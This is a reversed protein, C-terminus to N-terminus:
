PIAEGSIIALANQLSKMEAERRKQREEYSPGSFDCTTELKGLYERAATLEVTVESLDKTATKVSDELKALTMSFNEREKEAVAKQVKYEQYYTDYEKQATAEETQTQSELKTFDSLAIELINLINQAAQERAAAPDTGEFTQPPAAAASQQLLSAGAAARQKTYFDSLVQIAKQLMEQADAYDKLATEAEAKESQRIETAEKAEANMKELDESRDQIDTKLQEMEAKEEEIRSTLKDANRAHYKEQKTTKATETDCWAKHEQEQAQESLLKVVMDEIMKKVKGFPDARMAQVMRSTLSDLQLFGLPPTYFRRGLPVSRRSRVQLFSPSQELLTTAQGRVERKQLEKARDTTLVKIAEDIAALEEERGKTRMEFQAAKEQCNTITDTLYKETDALYTEATQKEQSLQAIKEECAARSMKVGEINKNLNAIENKMQLALKEFTHAANEEDKSAQRQQEVIDNKMDEVVKKVMGSKGEYVPQAPQQLLAQPQQQQQPVGDAVQQFFAQMRDAPVGSPSSSRRLVLTLARQAQLLTEKSITKSLAALAKDLTDVSAQLGNFTEIFEAHEKERLETDKQLDKEKHSLELALKELDYGLRTVMASQEDIDAEAESIRTKAGAIDNRCQQQELDCWREFKAYLDAEVVAEDAVKKKLDGLLQKVKEM